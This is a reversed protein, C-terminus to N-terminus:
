VKYEIFHTPNLEITINNVYCSNIIKDTHENILDMIKNKSSYIIPNSEISFKIEYDRNKFTLKAQKIINYISNSKLITKDNEITEILSGLTENGKNLIFLIYKDIKHKTIKNTINIKCTQKQVFSTKVNIYKNNLILDYDSYKFNSFECHNNQKIQYLGFLIEGIYGIEKKPKRSLEGFIHKIYRLCKELNNFKNTALWNNFNELDNSVEKDFFLIEANENKGNYSFNNISKYEYHEGKKTTLKINNTINIYAIGSKYDEEWERIEFNNVKKILKSFIPKNNNM